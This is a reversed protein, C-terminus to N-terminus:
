GKAAFFIGLPLTAPLDGRVLYGKTRGHAPVHLYEDKKYGDIHLVRTTHPNTSVLFGRDGTPLSTRPGIEGHVFVSPPLKRAFIKRLRKAPPASVAAVPAAQSAQPAPAPPPEVPKPAPIVEAVKQAETPSV